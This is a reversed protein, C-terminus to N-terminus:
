HPDSDSDDDEDDDSSRTGHAGQSAPSQPAPIKGAQVPTAQVPAAQVPAAQVPLAQVPVQVPPEPRAPASFLTAIRQEAGRKLVVQHRAIADIKWGMFRDGAHLEQKGGSDASPSALVLKLGRFDNVVASVQGRLVV